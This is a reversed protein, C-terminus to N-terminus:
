FNQNKGGLVLWGLIYQSTYKFYRKIQFFNAHFYLVSLTHQVNYLYMHFSNGLGTKPTFNTAFFVLMM